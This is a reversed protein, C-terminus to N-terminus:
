TREMSAMMRNRYRQLGFEGEQAAIAAEIQARILPNQFRAIQEQMTLEKSFIPRGETTLYKTLREVEYEFREALLRVRREFIHETGQKPM